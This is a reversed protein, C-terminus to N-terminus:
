HARAAPLSVKGPPMSPRQTTAADFSMLVAAGSTSPAITVTNPSAQCDVASLTGVVEVDEQEAQATGDSNLKTNQLSLKSGAPVQIVTSFTKKGKTFIMQHKGALNQGSMVFFGSANTKSSRGTGIVAVRVNAGGSVSGAVVSAPRKSANRLGAVSQGALMVVGLTTAAVLTLAKRLSGPVGPFNQRNSSNPKVM